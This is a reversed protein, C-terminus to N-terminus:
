RVAGAQEARHGPRDRHARQVSARRRAVHVAARRLRRRRRLDYALPTAMFGGGRPKSRARPWPRLRLGRAPAWSRLKDRTMGPSHRSSRASTQATALPSESLRCRGWRITSRPASNCRPSAAAQVDAKNSAGRVWARLGVIVRPPARPVRAPPLAALLLTCRRSRLVIAISRWVGRM